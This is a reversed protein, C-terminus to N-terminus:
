VARSHTGELPTTCQDFRLAVVRLLPLGQDTVRLGNRTREIVGDEYLDSLSALEPHREGGVYSTLTLHGAPARNPITAEVSTSRFGLGYAMSCMMLMAVFILKKKM